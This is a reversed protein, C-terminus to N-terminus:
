EDEEIKNKLFLNEKNDKDEYFREPEIENTVKINFEITESLDESITIIYGQATREFTVGEIIIEPDNNNAFEIFNFYNDGIEELLYTGIPIQSIILEQNSKLLATVQNYSGDENATLSTLRIMFTQTDAKNLKMNEFQTETGQIEKTFKLSISPNSDEKISNPLAVKVINSNIGTIFDVPRDFEDIANWQTRCDMRALTKINKDAPSKMQILVYTLSNTPLIAPNGESDLYEFALSKVKTKDIHEQHEQIVLSDSYTYHWLIQENSNYPNHNTEPYNNGNLETIEISPLTYGTYGITKTVTKPEINSIKFGYANNNSDDSCWHIYFDTSPIEITQGALSTKYYQNSRYLRGNYYYYIYLCDSYNYTKFNEDFTIALGNGVIEPTDLIYEKWDSNLTGNENYLNGAAPNESYYPKVIYGKSEAYSIDVDKFFGKWRQKEPQAEELNTYVILNTVDAAGTRVRLKYEYNSNNSVDVIGTSYNSKDTRVYTTVDQHTSVASTITISDNNWLLMELVNGNQNIDKAAADKTGEDTTTDNYM